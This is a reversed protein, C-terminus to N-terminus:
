LLKQSKLSSIPQNHTFIKFHRHIKFCIDVYIIVKSIQTQSRSSNQYYSTQQMLVVYDINFYKRQSNLNLIAFHKTCADCLNGNFRASCVVVTSIHSQSPSTTSHWLVITTFDFGSINRNCLKMLSCLCQLLYIIDQFM